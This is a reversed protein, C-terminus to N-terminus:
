RGLRVQDAIAQAASAAAKANKGALYIEMVTGFQSGFAEPAVAGHVLSGVIKNSKWDKAASQLYANYKGLDSDLRAAISGKLPNFIDQGEKSGLLKLWKLAAERHKAGKPLGFSDSLMMFVGSTSPSPAYGFGEGPVLKLTTAMYGAAWDGMVNFAADGKLMRDVAQQWSLGSADPNSCALVKGFTEWAKVVKPDTFKLKGSWLASWDDPGLVGLAVSEWLHNQTWNEGLALPSKVGKGKLTECTALFEDWTKPPSVGWERLRAPVYWMVNSRHINVPVSWTGSKTSLLSILGPPFKATWGESKFLGSLDEMRGAVVWTAILEQGAHVQFSDPPDGGLMRTKLVARANVGSGGTVTSNIAQINPYLASYKDILAQLAPGEDGAWWSFIELKEQARASPAALIAAVVASVVFAGRLRM